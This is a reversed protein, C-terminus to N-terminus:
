QPMLEQAYAAIAAKQEPYDWSMRSATSLLEPEGSKAALRLHTRQEASLGNGAGGQSVSERMDGTVCGALLLALLTVPMGLRWGILFKKM